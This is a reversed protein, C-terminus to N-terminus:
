DQTTEMARMMAVDPDYPCEFVPSPEIIAGHSYVDGFRTEDSTPLWALDMSDARPSSDARTVLIAGGSQIGRAWDPTSPADSPFFFAVVWALICTVVLRAAADLVTADSRM